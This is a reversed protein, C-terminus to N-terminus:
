GVDTARETTISLNARKVGNLKMKWDEVPEKPILNGCPNSGDKMSGSHATFVTGAREIWRLCTWRDSCEGDHCRVDNNKLTM